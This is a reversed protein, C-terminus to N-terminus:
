VLSDLIINKLYMITIMSQDTRISHSFLFWILNINLM